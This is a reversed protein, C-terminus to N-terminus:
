LKGDDALVLFPIYSTAHPSYQAYRKESSPLHSSFHYILHFYCLILGIFVCIMMENKEDDRM